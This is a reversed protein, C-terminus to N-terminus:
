NERNTKDIPSLKCNKVFKIFELNIESSTELSLDTKKHKLAVCTPGIRILKVIQKQAHAIAFNLSYLKLCLFSCLESMYFLCM